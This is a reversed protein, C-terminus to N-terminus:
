KRAMLFKKNDKTVYKIEGLGISSLNTFDLELAKTIDEVLQSNYITYTNGQKRLNYQVDAIGEKTIVLTDKILGIEVTEELELEELVEKKLMLRKGSKATNVLRIASAEGSNGIASKTQYEIAEITDVDLDPFDDETDCEQSQTNHDETEQVDLQENYENIITNKEQM